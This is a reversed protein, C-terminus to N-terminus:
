RGPGSTDGTDGVGLGVIIVGGAFTWAAVVGAADEVGVRIGTGEADEAAIGAGGVGSADAAGGGRCADGGEGYVFDWFATGAAM